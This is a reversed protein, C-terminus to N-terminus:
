RVPTREKLSLLATALIRSSFLAHLNHRTTSKEKSKNLFIFVFRAVIEKQGIM